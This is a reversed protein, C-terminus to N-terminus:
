AHRGEIRRNKSEEVCGHTRRPTATFLPSQDLQDCGAVSTIIRLRMGSFLFRGTPLVEDLGSDTARVELFDGEVASLDAAGAFVLAGLCAGFALPGGSDIRM